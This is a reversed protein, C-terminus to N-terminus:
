PKHIIFMYPSAGISSHSLSGSSRCPVGDVAKDAIMSRRDDITTNGILLGPSQSGDVRIISSRVILGVNDTSVM